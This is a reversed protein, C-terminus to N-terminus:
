NSLMKCMNEEYEELLKAIYCALNINLGIKKKNLRYESYVFMFLFVELGDDKAHNSWTESVALVNIENNGM